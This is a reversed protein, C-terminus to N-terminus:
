TMQAQRRTFHQRAGSMAFRQCRNTQKGAHQKGGAAPMEGGSEAGHQGHLRRDRRAPLPQSVGRLGGYLWLHVILHDVQRVGHMLEVGHPAIIRGCFLRETLIGDPHVEGTLLAIRREGRQLFSAIGPHAFQFGPIM